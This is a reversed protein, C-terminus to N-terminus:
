AHDKPTATAAGSVPADLVRAIQALSEPTAMQWHTAFVAHNHLAGDIANAWGSVGLTGTPDDLAATFYLLDGHFPRPRYRDILSLSAVGSDVIRALREAGVSAFPEPLEALKAALTQPDLGDLESADGLLGGLMESVLIQVSSAEDILPGDSDLSSDLMALSAVRQGQDQLRVAVAHAIVGGLSWGLLHYPGEPQVRRIEAVYRDAWDEISDPLPVASGLTPSQLGYIPRSEDLHATLGAFSWAVGGVPHICFLPAGTGGTRLPLLVDFAREVDFEANRLRAALGGPTPDTFLLLVPIQMGLKGGLEAALQVALLSNGGLEFFSDDLGVREVGLVGAFAACAAIELDSVPARYERAAFVPEPLAKRDLKGNANLPLDDLVMLASPVMYSPLAARLAAAVRETDLATDSAPVLYAVLMGSEKNPGEHVLVAAQAIEPSALLATEIEGLEIRFGRVKVQFDTRGLYELEGGSTWAVLDGTRYMREGPTFPSAVFRDATLDPRAFYGRALQAGSLYLEGEVGAPVPRLRSDLVYVQSNWEPAGVPVSLRDADTVRHNTISVAAETPGYLNCLEIEPYTRRFRQAVAAPLAEGIALVRRLPLATRAAGSTATTLLAHLMSPVAHLTTVGERAMLDILYAPDRHGDPAAIVLRGGSVAASWFEWVSLDFTAATKLLVADEAGLGFEATKWLLQNVIAAHPVAVGKPKGTSGSTFIVYATHDPRLTGRREAATIPADSYGSLDLRDIPLQATDVELDAGSTLVTVPDSTALIYEIRDAPQDPDVPVYVGGAVSVAYMAVVLDVSRRLALAVRDEPGVGLSILHRALRNVRAVLEGYTLEVRGAPLGRHAPKSAVPTGSQSASSAASTGSQVAGAAESTGTQAVGSTAPTGTQAASSAARTGVTAPADAVLAIRDPHLAATRDLLTALTATTEVEHATDNWARLIRTREPAALIELDGVQSEPALVVANLVRRLREAFGTATDKDFLATSYTLSATLGAPAGDAAYRDAIVLHLDFQSITTEFDAAGVRLGDLELEPTEVNNFSFGIQFLAHRATSRVVDLSEVLREFPVDAHSFAALDSERVEALLTRFDAAPDVAARLVLTNVFMGVLDDLEHEGRGAIPTGVAIDATGSLRALLLAWAAHLVMFLTAGQSHGLDVLRKHLDADLDFEVSGGETSLVAPRPRDSPLDLQDPLGALAGRWFDLQRALLSNPDDEAGLRARQWLAYDAYQVPLPQWQPALGAHRAAYAAMVDRALPAMSAGDAAIHHVVVVLVYEDATGAISYLQGRLPVGTTVDFGASVFDTIVGFLEDAAVPIPQLSPLEVESMPLIVQVPGSETLPYVTRLVEHRAAVDAMAAELAPIDLAGTLRIPLPMNYASSDGDFRNLFWMRQQPLSLPVPGEGTRPALAPGESLRVADADVTAALAAVTPFEFVTRMAVDVGLRASLRASLKVASLSNGGLLFFNDDLGVRDAGLLQAITDAVVQEVVTEPARFEATRFVPEPLAKRDLKAMPTLPIADIVMIVAPVMYAILSRGAFELLQETDVVRGAAPVVYSVLSVDGSRGTHGVTVAFEVSEHAILAADIEGLEIRLGRVKVQDDSRGLYELTPETSGAIPSRVWRVLDGTRYLRGGPAGYPDAVFRDASLAARGHYGRALGPGRLYLEGAAGDPVPRLRTDLVVASQGDVLDGLVVRGNPPLPYSMHSIITIETPGYGNYLERTAGWRDVLDQGFGEGGVTLYPMGRLTEPDLTNIVAPTFVGHTVGESEILEKLEAGGIIEVPSVVLAAGVPFAMLIELINADFSPSTRHLVRSSSTTPSHRHHVGAIGIIGANGVVVGKPRGTSGSTYVMWAANDVHVPRVLEAPAIREGAADALRLQTAPDDIVLWTCTDAPLRDAYEAITIGVPAGSDSLMFGIRDAPYTPDVPLFAAGTKAVAFLAVVSYVSRPVSLAVFDEAGVGHEILLRALRSSMADLEAYSVQEGRYILAPAAPNLDVAARLIEALSMPELAVPGRRALIGAREGPSLVEVSGITRTADATVAGLVRGFRRLLDRATSEDYLDTAYVLEVVLNGDSDLDQGVSFTLDFKAVSDDFDVPELVLGPVAHTGDDLDLYNLSVTFLPHRAQEAVVGLASVVREFPVAAHAFAALDTTRSEALLEAFTRDAAPRTRLALTNVFMGVLGDLAPEDRGLVPTGIAIDESGSLRALLTSLAAHLVMFPTAHHQKALERVRQGIGGGIRGRVVAGRFSAVPPRPRDAPLTLEDPLGALTERWYDLETEGVTDLVEHRWLAYDAYQVALPEWAPEVGVTRSLYALVVDRLLPDTSAGDGAIHHLVAVLVHSTESERLLMARLPVETTVDFGASAFEYFREVVSGTIEELPLDIVTGAPLIEQRGEGDADMPYRTRLVEHRTMVDAMAARLAEFDINGILRVAFPINYAPSAPDLRNLLWMRTQAPSLPIREPRPVALLPPLTRQDAGTVVPALTAVTPFEFITRVGLDCGFTANIRAVLRMALLSNGGLGFFDDDAGIPATAGLLEGVLGALVAEAGERPARFTTAAATFEVKPLAARDLKGVSTRPMDKLVVLHAPVMYAPLLASAHELVTDASLGAGSVYGVLCDTGSSDRDLLVVANAVGEAALLAAEIEGLEIRQGRLKVQFDNRGLYVLDGARNWRVLDGTRYMRKGAVGFPDAVFREATLGGRSQYGRALQDGALYLEGIVGTPVPRLRADLVYARTNWNPLGIAVEYDPDADTFEHYVASIAAETPGYANHVAGGVQERLAGLLEAPLAEGGTHLHRFSRLADGHGEALLAALVSPVHEAITVGHERMRDALYNLDQHGGPRLLALPAGTLAPLFCEWVSVDFALPARQMIRDAATVEYRHELWRLQNMIARHSTGVGKPKGTSGSTFLVYALNDPRLPRVREADTIPAPSFGALDLDAVVLTRVGPASPTAVPESAAVADVVEVAVADVIEAAVAAAIEATKADTVGDAVPGAVAAMAGDSASISDPAATETLAAISAPLTAGGVALVLRAHSTELVHTIRDAPHDPDIPVYAAGASIVAYLAIMMDLSRVATLAIIDDPGVGERILFRSLRNSRDALESWTLTAGDLEIAVADGSAAARHDLLDALTESPLARVTANRDSFLRGREAVSMLELEGVVTRPDTILTRLVREYWRLFDTATDADFLDTAYHLHVDIGTPVGDEYHDSLTWDQDFQIPLVGADLGTISLERLHFDPQALNQMTFGVQYLPSYSQSRVPNLADVLTEFPVASHDFAALDSDRVQAMVDSLRARAAVPTRLVLTNVFMGVLDDLAQDGRGAIPTGVLIDDTGSVRALLVALAAHLVMFPTARHENAFEVVAAHLEADLVATRADARGSAVAPRPRDTPLALLDPAGTLRRQWYRLQRALVSSADDPTGLANRQWIAYDAYQVPLPRWTPAVNACRSVYAQALDRALPALSWGDSAIHHVVILLVYTDPEDTVQLLQARLPVEVTVDFVTHALGVALMPLEASAVPKPELDVLRTGAPLVLQRAVGDQEPYLTRLTEHRDIVDDVATRLAEVNLAGTLRLAFPMNYGGAETDFRNLFWMRQQSISLPVFDGREQRTVPPLAVKEEAALEALRVALDRVTSADFITRLPIALGTAQSLRAVLQTAILSNGGRIFFNDEAGVQDLGLLDGMVAAVLIESDGAPAIFEDVPALVPAPLAARDLKGNPTLPMAALVVFAGPVMYGPLKAALRASLAETDIVQGTAPVLYATLIDGTSVTALLVAAQAVTDEAALAAEIEGLEIRLGRLKVQFDTRGLYELEGEANWKVLDGTRYLREGAAFPSAVFRDATLGPRATYGTALQAGALYLEGPVGAPVPALRSDLVYVRTNFVPRGIPVTRTDADTVRHYTVDVAAETPGYLNHLEAGTLARLRQATAAALAEGSAFITRPASDREGAHETLETVYLELASPVFHAVTVGERAILGALYAPDRHGDPRAVVLRAGIQLPWFFEWVSVDFTAPTKQLVVDATTLRYEAQMWELRNVIAAHGVAVGKPRGTSGSTFIIYATHSSHLAVRRDADTLPTDSYEELAGSKVLEDIRLQPVGFGDVGATGFPSDTGSTLIVAPAATEIIYRIRDVPHDLDLPVYAGGAAVVAYMGIVLDPGRRMALAVPVDPGVGQAVLHRALRHVRAAFEGYTLSEDEFCVAATDTGAAVQEEFRTLLTRAPDVAVATDNWVRLVREREAAEFLDIDGIPATADLAVAHLVRQWRAVFSAATAADFLEDAYRLAGGLTGDAGDDVVLQLDFRAGPDTLPVPQITLAGGGRAEPLALEGTDGHNEGFSLMVQFLPHGTETRDTVLEDVIQEFPLDANAFAALDTERVGALLELFSAGGDVATRLVVTNVFMGILGDLEREGRGGVPSGIAIDGTGTLRALAAAFAAHVVMFLSAGHERALARLGASVEAPVTFDIAAGTNRPEAPRPRDVPLPLQAPTGALTDRWFGLQQHALDGPTEASGLIERQWLAYDAYQVPLPEWTPAAGATRAHFATMLDTVLPRLSLADGAIHHVVLVLVYEDANVPADPGRDVVLLAIRSPLERTVDFSAQVVAAVAATVEDQLVPVPTLSLGVEAAELLQQYPGSGDDPYMTRLAEHRALVDLAAEELATVDLRGSLRLVLPLNYLSPGDQENELRNLFWLRQQAPSLPVREPRPGAVLAPRPAADALRGVAAAFGAVTAGEFLMRVPIRVGLEAGTRATIQTALLSSGGLLFFDDDLGVHQIGLVEGFVRSVLRQTADVPARFRKAALVPVPLAGRDLKGSTGLPFETLEVVTTPVMYPPLLATLRDRVTTTDLESGATRIVYGALYDGTDATILRVAARGVEPLTLLASEIDALEIRQGRFKIQFDIRGLYALEGDQTWKVLDGTRYMRAGPFGYPNAVFRDSTLDARDYYGRALQVGALYLEGPVGIPAPRLRSDLVYVQTNWEPEGMPVAPTFEDAERYTVTIAAETPGYLNHLTADSVARFAVVTEVPFAEGAVFVDRLSDLEGPEAHAAFVSLMSPVFDTLTVGHAAVTEALYRADRHGDPSALVLTAGVRLPLFYGWLSVDFTSPTKQLYVDSRAIRYEAQMWAMQNAISRHSVAVGKPTGTSGSTFLVYAPHEPHVVGGRERDGIRAESYRSLDVEDLRLLPAADTDFADAATTLVLLPHATGLVNAIREAPHAPDIPVYAAGARLVAYMAIVLEVSRSMALVVLSEAGAGREILLRALRNAQESLEAYTLSRDGAIVATATPTRQVQADFGAHLLTDAVKAGTANWSDIVYDREGLDLLEIDGVPRDADATAATLLRLFKAAFERVTHEDFLDTAYTFEVRYSSDQELVTLNLDFKAFAQDFDVPTAAMGPLSPITAGLNQMFLAVQFLPHRNRARVPNLVEVLREFPVDRHAFARLDRDRAHGVLDAFSQGARVDTRLVLTNVFMGILDDLAAEGRGAVPTGIAIDTTGSLRALLAALAAHLVMFPTAQCRAAVADVAARLEAPIIEEFTAGRYSSEAPRPRDAPLDLQAPLDDLETTWFAIERAARSEPDQEDGLLERQWLAYDAYQVALPPWGPAVGAQRSAYAVVLDRLLPNLSFGDAAIHHVVLVLAHDDAGLSLLRLRLPVGAAVDFGRGAEAYVTALLAQEEIEVPTLDFEVAEGIVQVPGAPTQPYHTRLIEHRDVLDTVAASLAAIELAGRLRLAAVVNDVASADYGDAAAGSESQALQNLFWMRQQAPSLPLADPRPGAVLAPASGAAAPSNEALLALASVTPRDFFDRVDVAAGLSDRMRAIARTAVLSNGGLGFFDDDAGVREVGLLEAFIAAVAEEAPTAPARYAGSLDAFVPAPLARRDLKGHVTLPMEVMPMLVSPVMYAPVHARVGSLVAAPDIEAGREPVAYAVLAQEGGARTHMLVAAQAVTDDRLLAAEIEGLEIRQGRLKVQFDSRGLYELEAPAGDVGPVWRVLDGTRYMRDGSPGDANAVFREASLGPRGYYGRALQMGVLYLEGVVGMPVPRLDEDLVLLDVDDGPIGLPVSGVDAATVEHTTVLVIAETPGYMNYLTAGTVSRFGAAVAPQLAEGGVSVFRLSDTVGEPDQAAEAVLVALVSPVFFAVTIQSERMVRLLYAPDRHGDPTTVVLRGGTQLTWFIEWVSADFTIPTKFLMADAPSLPHLRQESRFLTQIARHTIAVGKPRGTSGSTFLVCALNDAVPQPDEVPSGVQSPDATFEGTTREFEDVRLVPVTLEAAPQDATTTLLLAPTSVELVYAIREAPHDPDIPLYAGGAELVAYMGVLLEVSRRAAVGVLVDPGVGLVRLHRALVTIRAAFEAYTLRIDGCEIAVADPTEDVQRRFETTLTEVPALNPELVEAAVTVADDVLAELVTTLEGEAGDMLAPLQGSVVVQVLAEPELAGGMAEALMALEGALVGYSVTDGEYRLASREPDLEAVTAILDPLDGVGYARRLVSVRGTRSTAISEAYHM